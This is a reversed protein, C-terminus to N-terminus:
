VKMKAKLMEFEKRTVPMEQEDKNGLREIIKGQQSEDIEGYSTLTTLVSSHGLNQSWAKLEEPTKCLEYGLQVVSNRFSHPNYYELGAGRFANRVIERVSSTSEWLVPILKERVFKGNEDFSVETCPFLPADYGFFKENKLFNVWETFVIKFLDGSPLLFSVIKKSNKTKVEDPCQEIRGEKLFVHKLRLTTVASVRAGTLALFAVLARNRKQVETEAPMNEVVRKIQKFTPCRKTISSRAVQVDKGSLGFYQIDTANISKKYGRQSCLWQFFDMLHRLTHLLYNKTVSEGTRFNKKKKLERKFGIIDKKNLQKFKKFDTNEEFLCIASRINTITSESKGCAEQEWELYQRKIRENEANFKV